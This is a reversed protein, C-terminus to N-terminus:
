YCERPYYGLPEIVTGESSPYSLSHQHQSTSFIVHVKEQSAMIQLSTSKERWEKIVNKICFVFYVTGKITKKYDCIRTHM